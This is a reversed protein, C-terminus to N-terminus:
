YQTLALLLAVSVVGGGYERFYERMFKLAHSMQAEVTKVSLNLQQAIEPYSLGQQRSLVFIERRKPPLQDLATRYMTELETFEVENATHEQPAAASHAQYRLHHQRRRLQNLVSHYAVTFLYGKLPVDEHVQERKEWIKLFSEQVIEEAEPRSKLYSYAFRYVLSSYHRFLADFARADGQRLRRLCDLESFDRAVEM